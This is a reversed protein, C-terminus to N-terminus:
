IEKEIWTKGAVEVAATPRVATLKASYLKKIETWLATKQESTDIRVSQIENVVTDQEGQPKTDDTFTASVSYNGSGRGIENLKVDVTVTM